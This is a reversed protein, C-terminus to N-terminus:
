GIGGELIDIVRRASAWTERARSEFEDRQKGKAGEVMRNVFADERMAAVQAITMGRLQKGFKSSGALGQLADAGLGAASSPDDGLRSYAKADLLGRLAEPAGRVAGSGAGGGGAVSGGSDDTTPAAGDDMASRLPKGELLALAAAANALRPASTVGADSYIQRLTVTQGSAPDYLERDGERNLLDDLSENPQVTFFAPVSVPSGDSRRMTVTASPPAASLAENVDVLAGVGTIASMAHAIGVGSPLNGVSIGTTAGARPACAWFFEAFTVVHRRHAFCDVNVVRCDDGMVIDALIVWPEPPCPPCGRATRQACPYIATISPQRMPTTYPPPLQRLVAVSFSDRIRSYECSDDDCSCGCGGGPHRVPQTVCEDYRIALYVRGQPCSARVDSCWPDAPSECCGDQEGTGLKCIDVTFERDIVIEDGYPGLIYGPEVIVECAGRGRRVCAGCVVGWGHLLRNHRKHKERFYVQDQTLDDPTVLQRPYFRTRQLAGGVGSGTDCPATVQQTRIMTAM